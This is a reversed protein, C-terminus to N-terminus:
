KEKILKKKMKDGGMDLVLLYGAREVECVVGVGDRLEV